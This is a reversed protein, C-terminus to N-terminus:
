FMDRLTSRAALYNRGELVSAEALRLREGTSRAVMAALRTEPTTESGRLLCFSFRERRQADTFQRLADSCIYEAAGERQSYPVESDGLLGALQVAQMLAPDSGAAVAVSARVAADPAWRRTELNFAEDGLGSGDKAFLKSALRRVELMAEWM